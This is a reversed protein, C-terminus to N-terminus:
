AMGESVAGDTRDLRQSTVFVEVRRHDVGVYGITAPQGHTVRQVSRHVATGNPVHV